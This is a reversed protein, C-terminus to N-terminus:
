LSTALDVLQRSSLSGNSQVIYWIGGSVWTANGQGYLYVTRGGATVTQYQGGTTTVFNAQLASSDWSSRKQTVTYYRGDSNSHFDASVVGTAYNLQGLSYGAPRYDPLSASFGAKASAMQLRVTSLNQTIILGLLVVALAVAAGIGANRKARSRAPKRVSPQRHSEAHRLAHELVDATTQPRKHRGAARRPETVPVPQLSRAAPASSAAQVAPTGGAATFVSFRSIFRSKSIQRAHRLRQEDIQQVSPKVLPLQPPEILRDTDGYARLRRKTGPGPKSVAQRMLTSPPAPSRSVNHPASLKRTHSRSPKSKVSPKASALVQSAPKALAAAPPHSLVAGTAADYRKGNIEIINNKKRVNIVQRM